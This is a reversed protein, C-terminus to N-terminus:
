IEKQEQTPQSFQWTNSKKNNILQIIKKYEDDIKDCEQKVFLDDIGNWINIISMRLMELFTLRRLMSINDANSM